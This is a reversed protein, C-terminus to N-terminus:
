GALGGLGRRRQLEGVVQALLRDLGLRVPVVAAGDVHVRAVGAGLLQPVERHRDVGCGEFALHPPEPEGESPEPVAAEPPVM